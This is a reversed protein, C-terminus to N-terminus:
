PFGSGIAIPDNASEFVGIRLLHANTKELEQVRRTLAAAHAQQYHWGAIEMASYSCRTGIIHLRDGDFRFYRWDESMGPLRGEAMLVLLLWAPRPIVAKGSQWRLMTTRHIQLVRIVERPGITEICQRIDEPNAPPSPFGPVESGRRRSVKKRAREYESFWAQYARSYATNVSKKETM